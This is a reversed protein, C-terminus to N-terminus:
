YITALNRNYILTIDMNSENDLKAFADVNNNTEGTAFEYIQQLSIAYVKKLCLKFYITEVWILAFANKRTKNRMGKGCKDHLTINDWPLKVFEDEGRGEMM